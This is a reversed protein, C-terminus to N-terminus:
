KNGGGGGSSGNMESFITIADGLDGGVALPTFGLPFTTGAACSWSGSCSSSVGVEEGWALLFEQLSKNPETTGALTISRNSAWNFEATLLQYVFKDCDTKLPKSLLTLACNLGADNVSFQFPDNLALANIKTLYFLLSDKPVKPKGGGKLAFQLQQKWFGAPQGATTISGSQFDAIVKKTNPKFGFNNGSTDAKLDITLISPTTHFMYKKSPLTSTDVEVTYVRGLKHQFLYGGNADTTASTSGGSQKLFVVVNAIGLEAADKTGSSDADIFVIGSLDYTPAFGFNNGSSDSSIAVTKNTPTSPIFFPKSPLSSQVVRITYTGAELGSITYNGLSDTNTSDIQVSLSNLLRLRVSAIGPDIGDKTGNSDADSFVNGSISFLRACPGPLTDVGISSTTKVGVLVRGQSVRGPFTISFSMPLSGTSPHWEINPNIGLSTDTNFTVGGTPSYSQFGPACAPLEVRFHMQVAPGGVTYTFRTSDSGYTTRGNYVVTFGIISATDKGLSGGLIQKAPNVAVPSMSKECAGLLAALCAFGVVFLTLKRM